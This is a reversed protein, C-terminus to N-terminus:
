QFTPEFRRNLTDRGYRLGYFNYSASTEVGEARKRMPVSDTRGPPSRPTHALYCCPGALVLATLIRKQTLDIGVTSVRTQEGAERHRPEEDWVMGAPHSRLSYNYAFVSAGHGVEGTEQACDSHPYYETAVVYPRHAGGSGSPGPEWGDYFDRGYNSETSSSPGGFCFESATSGLQVSPIPVTDTRFTLPPQAIYQYDGYGVGIRSYDYNAREDPLLNHPYALDDLAQGRM